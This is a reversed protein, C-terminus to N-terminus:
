APCSSTDPSVLAARANRVGSGGVSAALITCLVVCTGNLSQHREAHRASSSPRWMAFDNHVLSRVGQRLELRVVQEYPLHGLAFSLWANREHFHVTSCHNAEHAIPFASILLQRLFHQTLELGVTEEIRHNYLVLFLHTDNVRAYRM